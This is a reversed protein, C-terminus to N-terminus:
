GGLLTRTMRDGLLNAEYIEKTQRFSDMLAQRMMRQHSDEIEKHTVTFGTSYELYAFQELVLEPPMMKVPMLSSAKVVAPAAVLGFLGTLFKRRPLILDTM